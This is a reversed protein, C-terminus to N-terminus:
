VKKPSWKSDDGQSQTPIRLHRGNHARPPNPSQNNKKDNATGLKDVSSTKQKDMQLGPRPSPQKKIPPPMNTYIPNERSMQRKRQFSIWLTVALIVLLASSVGVAIWVKWGSSVSGNSPSSPTVDTMPPLSSNDPIEVETGNSCNEELVPIDVYVKCYYWGSDNHTVLIRTLTSWTDMTQIRIKETTNNLEKEPVSETCIFIKSKQFFWKVRTHSRNQFSCNLTLSQDLSDTTPPDVIVSSLPSTALMELTLLFITVKNWVDM